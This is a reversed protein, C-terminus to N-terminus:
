GNGNLRKMMSEYNSLDLLGHGSLNFVIVKRENNKRAEIAEDVVAKIAHASEPAPVIGQNEMFIKAADFIERENYERWEVIGEKALLSLTPAVGHYRLGGAYIPPPVYDKGLTIMKVLPLLGASDPFDYKYEGKSFKPIEASSVAIYRKGKKNGIFPYTFGGFNSGGGVCGILIDADEGLLDLQTITEQGIVSQHLLVVDLVSGVLYRFENKLAYEIAESMAIGLSGPHQPNTELIKKGYETLNTPSAYVNAGYLQMISRRMPKQEYSVKVMFITSKMNYMSAALAVATGWQGAGTETVVHDIGEEKAFYAQPIATNIKHSGTPTAGEYKFYIRAPTKLYEELRKARFLPTPRGISLYRDRVEEPIKIYREITFQQRLVEKPLISRLLDIRSFDAGQPDRPPPLPKPLDPIINYWYKPLIEDEKVM